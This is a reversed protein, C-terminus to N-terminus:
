MLPPWFDTQTRLISGVSIRFFASSNRSALPSFSLLTLLGTVLKLGLTLPM